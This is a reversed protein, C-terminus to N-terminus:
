PQAERKVPEIWAEPEGNWTTKEVYKVPVKWTFPHEPKALADSGVETLLDEFACSDYQPSRCAGEKPDAECIIKYEVGQEAMSVELFHKGDNVNFM